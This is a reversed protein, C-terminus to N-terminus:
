GHRQGEGVLRDVLWFVMALAFSLGALYVFHFYIIQAVLFFVALAMAVAGATDWISTSTKGPDRVM